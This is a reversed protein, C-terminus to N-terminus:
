LEHFLSVWWQGRRWVLDVRYLTDSWDDVHLLEVTYSNGGGSIHQIEYDDPVWPGMCDLEILFGVSPSDFYRELVPVLAEFTVGEPQSQVQYLAHLVEHLADRPSQRDEPPFLSKFWSVIGM